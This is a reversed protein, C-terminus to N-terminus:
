TLNKRKKKTHTTKEQRLHEMTELILLNSTSHQGHHVISPLVILTLIMAM